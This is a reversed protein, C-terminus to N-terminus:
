AWHQRALVRATRRGETIKWGFVNEYFKIAREANDAAIDFHIVRGM